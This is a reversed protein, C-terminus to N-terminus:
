SVKKAPNGFVTENAAVDAIVVSGAGIRAGKGITIGSILTAGAGVFVEEALQTGAGIVSGAGIHTFDGIKCHNEITANAGIVCYNAIDAKAGVSALQGVLNGHGITSNVSLSAKAHIANVPMVKRRERLNKIISKKLRLDDVAVFANCKNGIFKLYGDDFIDGLV